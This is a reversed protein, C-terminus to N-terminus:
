ASSPMRSQRKDRPSPSTYLLCNMDIAALKSADHHAFMQRVREAGAKPLLQRQQYSILDRVLDSYETLDLSPADHQDYRQLIASAGAHKVGMSDLARALEAADITGSKDTDFDNFAKVIRAPPLKSQHEHQWAVLDQVLQTFEGLNLHVGRSTDYAAMRRRAESADVGRVGM